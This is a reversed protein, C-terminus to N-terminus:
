ETTERDAFYARLLTPPRNRFHGIPQLKVLYVRLTGDAWVVRDGRNPYVRPPPPPCHGPPPVYGPRVPCVKDLDYYRFTIHGQYNEAIQQDHPAPVAQREAQWHVQAQVTYPPGRGSGRVVEGANGDVQAASDLKPEVTVRVPHILNPILPM